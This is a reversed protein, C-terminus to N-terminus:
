WNRGGPSTPSPSGFGSRVKLTLLEELGTARAWSGLEESLENLPFGDASALRRLFVMQRADVHSEVLDAAAALRSAVDRWALIDADTLPLTARASAASQLTTADLRRKELDQRVTPIVMVSRILDLRQKSQAEVFQRWWAQAYKETVELQRRLQAFRAALERRSDVSAPVPQASFAFLDNLESELEPHPQLGLGRVLAVRACLREVMVVVELAKALESELKQIVLLEVRSSEAVDIRNAMAAVQQAFNVDGAM